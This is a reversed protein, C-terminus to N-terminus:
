QADQLVPRCISQNYLISFDAAKMGNGVNYEAPYGPPRPDRGGDQSEGGINCFLCSKSPQQSVAEWKKWTDSSTELRKQLLLAPCPLYSSRVKPCQLYKIHRRLSSTCRCLNVKGDAVTNRRLFCMTAMLWQTRIVIPEENAGVSLVAGMLIGAGAM